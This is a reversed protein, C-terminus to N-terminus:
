YYCLIRTCICLIPIHYGTLDEVLYTYRIDGNIVWKKFNVAIGPTVTENILIGNKDLTWLKGYDAGSSFPSLYMQGDLPSNNILVQDIADKKCGSLLVFFSM